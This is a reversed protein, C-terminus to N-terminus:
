AAPKENPHEARQRATHWLSVGSHTKTMRRSSKLAHREERPCMAETIHLEVNSRAHLVHKSHSASCARDDARAWAFTVRKAAAFHDFVTHRNTV